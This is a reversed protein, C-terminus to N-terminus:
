ESREVTDATQQNGRYQGVDNFLDNVSTGFSCAKWIKKRNFRKNKQYKEYKGGHELKKKYQVM